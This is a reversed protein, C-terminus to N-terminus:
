STGIYFHPPARAPIAYRLFGRRGLGANSVGGVCLVLYLTDLLFSLGLYKKKSFLLFVSFKPSVLCFLFKLFVICDVGEV